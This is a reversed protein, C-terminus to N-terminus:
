QTFKIAGISTVGILTMTSKDLFTLVTNGGVVSSSGQFINSANVSTASEVKNGANNSFGSVTVSAGTGGSVSVDRVGAAGTSLNVTVAGSNSGIQAELTGTGGSISDGTGGWVTNSGAGGTITQSGLTGEILTAAAGATITDGSGGEIVTNVGALGAITGTVTGGGGLVSDNGAIANILTLNPGGVITDGPAAKIFTNEGDALTGTTGSGGTISSNGGSGYSDDIFTTGGTSGSITDAKGLDFITVSGVGGVIHEKGQHGQNENVLLTGTGGVISDGAAGYVTLNGAGGVITDSSGLHGDVFTAASSGVISDSAGAWVTDQVTGGTVTMPGATALPNLGGLDILESDGAVTSTAGSITDGSSGIVVINPDGQYILNIQESGTSDIFTFVSGIGAFLDVVPPSGPSFFAASSGTPPTFGTPPPNNFMEVPQNAGFVNQGGPISAM